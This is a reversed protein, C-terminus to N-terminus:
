ILSDEKIVFTGSVGVKDSIIRGESSDTALLMNVGAMPGKIAVLTQSRNCILELQVNHEMILTNKEQMSRFSEDVLEM